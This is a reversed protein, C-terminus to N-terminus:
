LAASGPPLTGTADFWESIIGRLSGPRRASLGFVFQRVFEQREPKLYEVPSKGDVRALLLLPLLGTVRQELSIDTGPRATQYAEWFAAILGALEGGAPAHFLRKLLLHNLLFAVDFAPDGYWAVECDLLVLRGAAILINKPSFDGHVLCERTAELRAAEALIWDRLAPQREATRLLYPATRLQHFSPTTDFRERIELDGATRRHIEGIVSGAKTAHATVFVGGLLRQKWNQYGEGLYEMGFYGAEPNAFLVRPVADPRWRGVCDLFARETANRGVDARWEDAVRLRPLARKVVFRQEGDEVLYIDSSVGGALPILRAGPHRVHGDRLLQDLFAAAASM